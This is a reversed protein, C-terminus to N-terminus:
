LIGNEYDKLVKPEKIKIIPLGDEAVNQLNYKSSNHVFEGKRQSETSKNIVEMVSSRKEDVRKIGEDFCAEHFVFGRYEYEDDYSVVGDEYVTPKIEKKCLQCIEKM